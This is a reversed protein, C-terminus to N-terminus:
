EDKRFGIARRKPEPPDMLARIANMLTKIDQDHTDLRHELQRELQALKQALEQTSSLAERMKVFARVVAVSAEIARDSNLVSAAMIAGHETFAYPLKRRGGWSSIVFQSKLNEFEEPTVQFMFDVPFRHINRKVAQNLAGTTVGYLEALTADLMIRHGRIHLILRDIPETAIISNPEPM